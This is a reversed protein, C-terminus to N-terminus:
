GSYVTTSSPATVVYYIVLGGAVIIIVIIIIPYLNSFGRRSSLGTFKSQFSTALLLYLARLYELPNMM